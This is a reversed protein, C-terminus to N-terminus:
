SGSREHINAFFMDRWSAPRVKIAGTRAMFNSYRWVNKPTLTYEIYPDSLFDTLEKVTTKEGSVRIYLAAVADHDSHIFNTAEELAKIFSALLKPNETAFKSSAWLVNFSSVGNLVDYSTTVTHIGANKLQQYQFPPSTFHATIESNDKDLMKNSADPHSMTVTIPDLKAWNAEGFAAVAAMQLTVAQISTKAAPMAIRDKDTFDAITKIAPNKTNLYLPMTNLAAIGKYNQK